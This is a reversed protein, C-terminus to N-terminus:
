PEGIWEGNSEWYPTGLETVRVEECEILREIAVDREICLSELERDSLKRIADGSMASYRILCATHSHTM